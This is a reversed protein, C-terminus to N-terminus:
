GEWLLRPRCSLWDCSTLVYRTDGVRCDAGAPASEAPDLGHIHGFVCLDAGSRGILDTLETPQGDAGLPPYHVAVVRVAADSDLRRLSAELRGRERQRIKEPDPQAERGANGGTIVGAAPVACKIPWAVGPWDWLRAGAVAVPGIRLADNQVFHLSEPAAARVKGVSEWWYDHNGKILVKQGPLDALWRLDPEATALRMAWSTDGAVIVLDEPGVTERWASAVRAAHDRWAPGFVDMPKLGDHSLHLDSLAFLRM